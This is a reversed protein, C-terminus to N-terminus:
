EDDQEGTGDPHDTGDSGEQGAPLSEPHFVAKGPVSVDLIGSKGQELVDTYAESKLWGLKKDLEVAQGIQVRVNDRTTLLINDPDELNINQLMGGIKWKEVAELLRILVKQKYDDSEVPELRGGKTLSNLRIGDVVPYPVDDKQKIIDMIFGSGDIVIHSSLYPVVAVPIREEVAIIVENPLRFSVSEVIPFPANDEIRKKVKERSIKFINDGRSIGSLNM